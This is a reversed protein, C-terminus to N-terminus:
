FKMIYITMKKKREKWNYTDQRFDRGESHGLLLCDLEYGM